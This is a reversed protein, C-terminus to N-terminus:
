HVVEMRKLPHIVVCGTIQCRQKNIAIIYPHCHVTVLRTPIHMLCVQKCMTCVQAKLVNSSVCTHMHPGSAVLRNTSQVTWCPSEVDSKSCAHQWRCSGGGRGGGEGRERAGRWPQSKNRCICSWYSLAALHFLMLCNPLSDAATTSPYGMGNSVGLVGTNNLSDEMLHLYSSTSLSTKNILHVRFHGIKLLQRPM